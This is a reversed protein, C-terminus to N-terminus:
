LRVVLGLTVGEERAPNCCVVYEIVMHTRTEFHRQAPSQQLLSSIVSVRGLDQRVRLPSHFVSCPKVM